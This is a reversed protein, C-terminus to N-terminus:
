QVLDIRYRCKHREGEIYMDNDPPLPVIEVLTAALRECTRRSPWNDPNCTIWISRFGHERAFPLLLRVGREAYHHGRFPEDVGYAFHGGFMELSPTTQARFNITGACRGAVRLEFDYNPVWSRSHDGPNTRILVVELEGDRLAGPNRFTFDEISDM